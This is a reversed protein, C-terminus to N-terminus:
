LSDEGAPLADMCVAVLREVDEERLTCGAARLHGGGGFQACIASADVTRRTRLSTRYGGEPKEWLTIGIEVGQIRRPLGSIGDMEADSIGTKRLMEQTITIMAIRGGSFYRLGAVAMQEMELLSRSTTEFLRENVDAQAAGLELLEAACRLAASTTNSFRFCGTDTALGTYLCTATQPTIEAGMRRIVEMLLQCTAAADPDLCLANAYRGNSGHHDICLDIPVSQFREDVMYLAAADLAALFGGEFQDPSYGEYLFAFRDPFGDPCIVEAQKGLGHLVNWLAFSSGLTDGDPNRHALIRVCDQEALLKAAEGTGILM